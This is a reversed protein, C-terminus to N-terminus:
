ACAAVNVRLHEKRRGLGPRRVLLLRGLRPRHAGAAGHPGLAEVLRQCPDGLADGTTQRRGLTPPQRATARSARLITQGVFKAASTLGEAHRDGFEEASVAASGIIETTVEFVEEMGDGFNNGRAISACENALIAPWAAVSSVAIGGLATTWFLVKGPVTEAM